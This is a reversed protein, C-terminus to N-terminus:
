SSIKRSFLLNQFRVYRYTSQLSAYSPTDMTKLWHVLEAYRELERHSRRRKTLKLQSADNNVLNDTDNGVHVFLNKLHMTISKSFKDRRKGCLKLQDQVAALQRLKPDFGEVNLAKELAKAARIAAKLRQPDKFDPDASFSCSDIIFYIHWKALCYPM